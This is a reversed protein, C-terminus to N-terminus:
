EVSPTLMALCTISRGTVRLFIFGAGLEQVDTLVSQVEDVAEQCLKLEAPFKASEITAAAVQPERGFNQPAVDAASKALFAVDVDAQLIRGAHEIFGYLLPKLVQIRNSTFHQVVQVVEYLFFADCLVFRHYTSARLECSAEAKQASPQLNVTAVSTGAAQWITQRIKFQLEPGQQQATALGAAVITSKKAAEHKCM